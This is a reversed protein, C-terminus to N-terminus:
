LPLAHEAVLIGDEDAYLYDGPAFRVGGFTVPVDREGIGCRVSRLPHTALASVYVPMTAIEASDRICGWVLIGAWGNDIVLRALQDGVLACRLSGGGDVVLVAGNGPQELTARILANDEFVKLTAAPGQCSGRGGFSRLLPALIRVTAGYQDCIDSTRPDDMATARHPLHSPAAGPLVAGPKAFSM